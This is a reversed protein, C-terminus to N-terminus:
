LHFVIEQSRAEVKRTGIQRETVGNVIFMDHHVGSSAHAGQRLINWFPHVTRRLISARITRSHLVVRGDEDTNLDQEHGQSELSYHQWIQRVM